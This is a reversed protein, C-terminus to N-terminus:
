ITGKKDDDLIMYETHSPRIRKFPICHQMVEHEISNCLPELNQCQKNILSLKMDKPTNNVWLFALSDLYYILTDKKTIIAKEM